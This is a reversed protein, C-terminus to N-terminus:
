VNGEVTLVASCQLHGVVATYEGASSSDVNQLILKHAKRESLIKCKDSSKLEVGKFMWRVPINDHSLSMEFSATGDLLSTVDKIKKVIKIATSIVASLLKFYVFFSEEMAARCNRILIQGVKNVTVDIM